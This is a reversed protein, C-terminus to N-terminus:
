CRKKVLGTKQRLDNWFIECKASNMLRKRMGKKTTRLRKAKTRQLPQNVARRRHRRYYLIALSTAILIFIFAILVLYEVVLFISSFEPFPFGWITNMSTSGFSFTKVYVLNDAANFYWCNLDAGEFAEADKCQPAFLTGGISVRSPPEYAPAYVALLTYPDSEVISNVKLFKTKEFSVGVILADMQTWFAVDGSLSRGHMFEISKTELPNLVIIVLSGAQQWNRYTGNEFRVLTYSDDWPVYLEIEGTFNVPAFGIRLRDDATFDVSTLPLVTNRLYAYKKPPFDSLYVSIVHPEGDYYSLPIVLSNLLSGDVFMESVYSGQGYYSITFNTQRFFLRFTINGLGAPLEGRIRLGNFGMEVGLLGRFVSYLVTGSSWSFWEGTSQNWRGFGQADYWECISSNRFVAGRIKQVVDLTKTTQNYAARALAYYGGIWLWYGGNHYTNPTNWEPVSIDVQDYLGLLVRCPANGELEQHRDMFLFISDTRDKPAVGSFVAMINSDVEFYSRVTGNECRWASYYGGSSNWLGGETVDKNLESSIGESWKAYYAYGTVNNFALELDAMCKLAWYTLSNLFLPEGARKITDAWDSANYSITNVLYNGDTDNRSLVSIAKRLSATFNLLFQQNETAVYYHWALIVYWAQIDLNNTYTTQKWDAYATFSTPIISEATQREKIEELANLVFQRGLKGSTYLYGILAGVMDRVFCEKYHLGDPLIQGRESMSILISFYLKWQLTILWKPADQIGFPMVEGLLGDEFCGIELEGGFYTGAEFFKKASSLVWGVKFAPTRNASTATMFQFYSDYLWWEKMRVFLPPLNGEFDVYVTGNWYTSNFLAMPHELTTINSGTTQAIKGTGHDNITGYLADAYKLIYPPATSNIYYIPSSDDTEKLITGDYNESLFGQFVAAKTMNVSDSLTFNRSIQFFNKDKELKLTWEEEGIIQGTRNAIDISNIHVVVKDTQNEITDITTGNVNYIASFVDFTNNSVEVHYLSSLFGATANDSPPHALVNQGYSGLGSPDFKLVSICVSTQNMELYVHGNELTLLDGESRYEVGLPALAQTQSADTLQVASLLNFSGLFLLITFFKAKVKTARARKM